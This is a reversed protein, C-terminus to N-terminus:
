NTNFFDSFVLKSKAKAKALGEAFSPCELGRVEPGCDDDVGASRGKFHDPREHFMQRNHDGGRQTDVRQWGIATLSTM